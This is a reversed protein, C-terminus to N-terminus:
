PKGDSGPRGSRRLKYNTRPNKELAFSSTALRSGHKVGGGTGCATPLPTNVALGSARVSFSSARRATLSMQYSIM